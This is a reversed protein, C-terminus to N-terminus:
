VHAAVGRIVDRLWRQAPDADLTEHWVMGVRSTRLPLPPEFLRLGLTKAFPQAVRRSLTAIADTQAVLGPVNLFHSVRLAVDRTRGKAALARDIGSTAGPRQTVMIHRLATYTALTLKAGVKPHGRRVICAYREEFLIAERHQAPVTDYYGLMVDVEGTALTTPVEQLGWPRVELRVGPALQGLRHVLRPLLVFEVYDSTALVFTRTSTKPEFTRPGLTQELLRLAERVTGELERTRATPVIGHSTRVFLPDDFLARLKQLASSMASQTIGVRKAARTVSRESALAAFAVFLNLNAATINM